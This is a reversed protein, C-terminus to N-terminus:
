LLVLEIIYTRIKKRKKIYLILNLSRCSGKEHLNTWHPSPALGWVSNVTDRSDCDKKCDPM